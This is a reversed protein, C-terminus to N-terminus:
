DDPCLWPLQACRGNVGGNGGGNGPGANGGGRGGGAGPSAGGPGSSVIISVVGGKVTSGEPSTKAVTGKPCDSPEERGTTVSFGARQLKSRADSVSNCKVNPISVRTGFAMKQSPKEFGQQPKGQMAGAMANQVAPNVGGNHEFRENTQPWDADTYFGAMTLSKTSIIITASKEKDTTGTKGFVPHKVKGKTDSATGSTCKGYASQDGLPCRGADVAGRAVDPDVVQQCEPEGGELKKGQLDQLELLPTPKCYKGDAALTAYANAMELPTQATVGLTYAGWEDANKALDTDQQNHFTLGLRKAVDVVKSTGIQEQLPVFYTNISRGLGSWMNVVGADNKGSNEPCYFQTGPCAAPSGRDIIYKSKYPSKADIPYDLPLGRELAAVITFMKFVSGAQYGQTDGGASLLPVTTNPWNGKLGKKAPNSNPGNVSQDNSFNRNVAMSTVRGSGPAVGTLMMTETTNNGGKKAMVDNISKVSAAQAQLDLSSIIKYGASRLKNQREYTDKGFKAQEGWWRILYDCFYGANLEPRQIQTCGEPTRKNVFNLKTAKAEDAQQQTIYGMKVMQPLVYNDRREIARPRKKDDAPDFDSPAKVLGVILSAEGLTLESAPKGFYVKSAADVGYAGNGFSAINLYRELIQDKTLKKEIALARKIEAIKRPGTDETAAVVESPTKASYSVVQRVYQMTLTSAGQTNGGRQNNVFARAVGKMDVGNHQYFRSDESAVMAQRVVEAMQDLTVDRRNEDYMYALLTTGDNAYVETNQPLPLVDIETPLSDFTDAGAKAALGGM